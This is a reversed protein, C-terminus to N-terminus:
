ILMINICLLWSGYPIKIVMQSVMGRDQFSSSDDMANSNPIMPIVATIISAYRTIM